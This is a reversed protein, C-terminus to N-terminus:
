LIGGNRSSEADKRKMKDTKKKKYKQKQPLIVEDSVQTHSVLLTAAM